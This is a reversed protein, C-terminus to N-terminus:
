GSPRISLENYRTERLKLTKLKTSENHHLAVKSPHIEALELQNQTKNQQPLLKDQQPWIM